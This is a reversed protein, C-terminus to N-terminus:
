GGYFASLSHTIAKVQELQLDHFLPLRILCDEFRDSNPLDRGDHRLHYYASKHLSRYHSVAMIGREALYSILRSREDRDHCILAMVHWNHDGVSSTPLLQFWGKQMGSVLREAYNEWLQRRHHQIARFQEIQAWLYAATLESPLFSSGLDKWGYQQVDGRFMAMRDTGKEWIVEARQMFREDNIVLMGGEGCQLNKTEHFSFAALHGISGLPIGHYRAGIAPAADEVIYLRHRISMDLVSGMDVPYGGYHVVVIVRTKDTILLEIGSTDMNPHDPMSDVFVLRAGRLAFANATSVHTYSPLIVEDGPQIDLLLAAMELAATASHTLLVRSFGFHQEFFHHCQATFMGNGALHGSEVAARIYELERGVM